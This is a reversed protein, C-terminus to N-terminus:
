IFFLHESFHIDSSFRFFSRAITHRKKPSFDLLFCPRTILISCKSFQFSCFLIMTFNSFLTVKVRRFQSPPRDVVLSGPDIFDLRLPLFNHHESSQTGLCIEQPLFEYFYFQIWKSWEKWFHHLFRQSHVSSPRRTSLNKEFAPQYIIPLSGDICCGWSLIFQWSNVCLQKM